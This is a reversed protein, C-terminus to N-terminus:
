LSLLSTAVGFYVLLSVADVITTIFPSAMVAPDLHIKKALIPLAAGILKACIVTFALTLSVVLAVSLTVDDNALLLRDILLIKGFSVAGLALACLISVRTEKFLVRWTDRFGIEGVSLGRIVTVSSQSGSNGGTGMIVPIFATLAVCSSLAAEFGSIIMGTFTASIMLILLWPIRSLFISLASTKLYPTESPTIAAMKTFDEEAEEQLVDMADDVTIIGILRNETDTVPLALFNYKDFMQAVEEKDTLTYAFVVNEEMIDGIVADPSSLLLTKADIVGLLHRKEDTVYCTYITEKDIADARITDFAEKVTMSKRLRVFETTMLSGASNKPYRLLSNIEKRSDASSNRLIRAAVSAPMEEVIDVTDDLYLEDLVEKLERDSFCSILREQVESDMEVFVDAAKEKPLIRFLLPESREDLEGFLAAIDVAPYADLTERLLSFKKESLLERVTSLFANENEEDSIFTKNEEM